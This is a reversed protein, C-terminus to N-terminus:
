KSRGTTMAGLSIVHFVEILAILTQSSEIKVSEFLSQYFYALSM